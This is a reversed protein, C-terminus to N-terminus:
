LMGHREWVAHQLLRLGTNFAVRGTAGYHSNIAVFVGIGSSLDLFLFSEYHMWQGDHGIASFGAETPIVLFGLGYSLGVGAVQPQMMQRITGPSLLRGDDNLLIHMFHAMDTATSVMSGTPLGNLYIYQDRTTANVYPRALYPWLADNLVFSTRALGAPAIIHQNTYRVFDNFHNDNGTMAAVLVGLLVYGNNSYDFIMGEPHVMYHHAMIDLFSNLFDPNHGGMSIYNYAFFDNALNVQSLIGATHTLLMRTTINRYNGGWSPSPRMSFGPLYEVIPVDLDIVGSEVLQIAAIATFIKSISGIGFVTNENVPIGRETDSYGFGQIWTFDQHADVIAVVMGPVSHQGMIVPALLNAELQTRYLNNGVLLSMGRMLSLYDDPHIFSVGSVVTISHRLTIPVDNMYAGRSNAFFRLSGTPLAVTISRDAASWGVNAGHAEFAARLPVPDLVVAEASTFTLSLTAIILALLLIM